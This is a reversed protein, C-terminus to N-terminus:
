FVTLFFSGRLRVNSIIERQEACVVLNHLGTFLAPIRSNPGISDHARMTMKLRMASTFRHPIISTVLVKRANTFFAWPRTPFEELASPLLINCKNPM